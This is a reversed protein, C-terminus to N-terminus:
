KFAEIYIHEHFFRLKTNIFKLKKINFGYMGLILRLSSSTFFRIHNRLPNFVDEFKFLSFYINQIVGHYPVKIKLFGKPKLVRWCEYLVHDINKIHEMFEFMIIGDISEDKFPLNGIEMDIIMDPKTEPRTDISITNPIHNFGAGLNIIKMKNM